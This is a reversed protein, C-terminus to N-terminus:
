YILKEKENKNIKNEHIQQKHNPRTTYIKVITPFSITTTSITLSSSYIQSVFMFKAVLKHFTSLM